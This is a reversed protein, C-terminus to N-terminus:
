NVGSALKEKWLLFSFFSEREPSEGLSVMQRSTSSPVIPSRLTSKRGYDEISVWIQLDSLELPSRSAPTATHLALM